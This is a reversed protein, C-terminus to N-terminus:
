VKKQTHGVGSVEISTTTKKIDKKLFEIWEDYLYYSILTILLPILISYFFDSTIWATIFTSVALTAYIIATKIM